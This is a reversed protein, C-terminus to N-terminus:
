RKLPKKEVPFAVRLSDCFCIYYILQFLFKKSEEINSIKKKQHSMPAQILIYTQPHLKFHILALLGNLNRLLRDDAKSERM